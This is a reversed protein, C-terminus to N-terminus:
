SSHQPENEMEEGDYPHYIFLHCLSFSKPVTVSSDSNRIPFHAANQWERCVEGIIDRYVGHKNKRPGTEKLERVHAVIAKVQALHIFRLLAQAHRFL